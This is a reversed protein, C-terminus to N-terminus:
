NYKETMTVVVVTAGIVVVVTAGVVILLYLRDGM